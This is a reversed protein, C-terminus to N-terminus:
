GKRGHGLFKDGELAGFGALFSFRNGAIERRAVLFGQRLADLLLFVVGVQSLRLGSAKVHCFHSNIERSHYLIM